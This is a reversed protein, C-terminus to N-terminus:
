VTEYSESTKLLKKPLNWTADPFPDRPLSHAQLIHCAPLLTWYGQILNLWSLHLINPKLLLLWTHLHFTSSSQVPLLEASSLKTCLSIMLNCCQVLQLCQAPSYLCTHQLNSVLLQWSAPYLQSLSGKCLRTKPATGSDSETTLPSTAWLSIVERYYYSEKCCGEYKIYANPPFLLSSSHWKKGMGNQLLVLLM